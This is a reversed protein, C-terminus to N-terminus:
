CLVDGLVPVEAVVLGHEYGVAEEAHAARSQDEGVPAPLPPSGLSCLRAMGTQM